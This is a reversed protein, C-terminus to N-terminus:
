EVQNSFRIFVFKITEAASATARPKELQDALAAEEYKSADGTALLGGAFEASM